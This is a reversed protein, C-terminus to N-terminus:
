EEEEEAQLNAIHYSIEYLLQVIGRKRTEYTGKKKNGFWDDVILMYVPVRKTGNWASYGNRYVTESGSFGRIHWVIDGEEWTITRLWQSGKKKWKSLTLTAEIYPTNSEVGRIGKRESPNYGQIKM